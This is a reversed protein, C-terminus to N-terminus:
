KQEHACMHYSFLKWLKYVCFKYEYIWVADKNKKNKTTDSIVTGEKHKLYSLTTLAKQLAGM